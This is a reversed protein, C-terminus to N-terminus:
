AQEGIENPDHGLLRLVAQLPIVVWDIRGMLEADVEELAKELVLLELLRDAAEPSLPLLSVPRITETYSHILQRVVEDYWAQAWPELAPRDEPRIMGAPRGRGGSLNLLVSQVAYDLSRILTAVDHLPSRKVRREGITRGAEGEFDIIVFDKGTYLLQGLHFDGHCRIRKGNFRPDLITRFRELILDHRAVVQDALTRAAESFGARNRTLRDCLRGTLNRMSQYLSRQYLKGFPEPALAPDTRNEALALHLEATRQGLLRAVDLYGEILEYLKNFEAQGAVPELLSAPRPQPAPQELALAAVQEFFRSLQDITYQWATGQNVVYRHLVALTAPQSDPRRYEISGVVPAAGQYDPKETLYRGIELDPNIGEEIRRFIKLIFSEGYVVSTNNRESRQLSLPLDDIAAPEGVDVSALRSSEIEGDEIRRM